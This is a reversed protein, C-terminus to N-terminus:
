GNITTTLFVKSRAVNGTINNSDSEYKVHTVTSSRCHLRIVISTIDLLYSTNKHNHIIPFICSHLFNTEYGGGRTVLLLLTLFYMSPLFLLAIVMLVVLWPALSTVRRNENLFNYKTAMSLINQPKNYNKPIIVLWVDSNMTDCCICM